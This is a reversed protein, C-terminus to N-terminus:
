NLIMMIIMMDYYYCYLFICLGWLQILIRLMTCALVVYFHYILYEIVVQMHVQKVCILNSNSMQVSDNGDSVFTRCVECSGSLRTRAAAVSLYFICYLIWTLGLYGSQLEAGAGRTAEVDFAFTAICCAAWQGSTNHYSSTPSPTDWLRVRVQASLVWVATCHYTGQAPRTLDINSCDM